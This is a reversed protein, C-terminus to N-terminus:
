GRYGARLRLYISMESKVDTLWPTARGKPGAPGTLDLREHVPAFRLDQALDFSRFYGIFWKVM